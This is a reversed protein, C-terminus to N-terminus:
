AAVEIPDKLVILAINAIFIGQVGGFYLYQNDARVLAGVGWFDYSLPTVAQGAGNINNPLISCLLYSPPYDNGHSIRGDDPTGLDRISAPLSGATTLNIAVGAEANAKSLALKIATDSVKIIYLRVSGSVPVPFTVYDKPFYSIEVGTQVWSLGAKVGDPDASENPDTTITLTDTTTNIATVQATHFFSYNIKKSAVKHISLIKKRTDISYGHSSKGEVTVASDSGDLAVLGFRSNSMTSAPQVEIPALYDDLIPLNYIKARVRIHYLSLSQGSFYRRYWYVWTDDCALGMSEILPDYSESIGYSAHFAPIFPRGKRTMGHRAINVRQYGNSTALNIAPAVVKTDIELGVEMFLWRSDLVKQYDSARDVGIGEQTIMVGDSM